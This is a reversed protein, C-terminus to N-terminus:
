KKNSYQNRGGEAVPRSLPRLLCSSIIMRGEDGVAGARWEGELVEFVLVVLGVAGESLLGIALQDVLRVKLGEVLVVGIGMAFVVHFRIGEHVDCFVLEPRDVASDIDRVLM